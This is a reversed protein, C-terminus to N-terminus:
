FLKVFFNSGKRLRNILFIKKSMFEFFGPHAVLVREHFWRNWCKIANNTRNNDRYVSFTVPEVELLWYNMYYAYLLKVADQVVQPQNSLEDAYKRKIDQLFTDIYILIISVINFCISYYNMLFEFYVSFGQFIENEPLLALAILQKVILYVVGKKQYEQQLGFEQTKRFIAQGYHFWCGRPRANPFASGMSGLIAPEFDSIVLEIQDISAGPNHKKFEDLIHRLSADYIKRNRHTMLVYAFPLTQLSCVFM